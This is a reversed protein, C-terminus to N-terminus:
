RGGLYKSRVVDNQRGLPCVRVRYGNFGSMYSATNGVEDVVDLEVCVMMVITELTIALAMLLM